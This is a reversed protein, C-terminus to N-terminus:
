SFEEPDPQIPHPLSNNDPRTPRMHFPGLDGDPNSLRGSSAMGSEQAVTKLANKLAEKRRHEIFEQVSQLWQIFEPLLHTPIESVPSDFYIGGHHCTLPSFIAQHTGGEDDEWKFPEISM